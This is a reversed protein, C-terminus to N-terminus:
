EAALNPNSLTVYTTWGAAEIAAATPNYLDTKALLILVQNGNTAILAQDPQVCVWRLWDINAEFDAAVANVDKGEELTVINMAFAQANMMHAFQIASAIGDDSSLGLTTALFEDKAVAQIAYSDAYELTMGALITDIATKDSEAIDGIYMPVPVYEEVEATLAKFCEEMVAYGNIFEAPLGEATEAYVEGGVYTGDVLSAALSGCVTNYEDYRDALASLGSEAYAKSIDAMISADLEARKIVDGVYDVHVTGDGNSYVIMSKSTGDGLTLTLTFSDLMVVDSPETEQPETQQPETAQPQTAQPQTTSDDKSEAADCAAFSLLMVAAMLMAFIKKM